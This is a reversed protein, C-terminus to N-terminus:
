GEADLFAPILEKEALLKMVAIDDLDAIELRIHPEVGTGELLVGKGSRMEAFPLMLRYNEGVDYDNAALVFGHSPQGVIVADSNEKMKIEEM